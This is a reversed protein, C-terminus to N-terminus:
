AQTTSWCTSRSARQPWSTPSRPSRASRPWISHSSAAPAAARIEARAAEGKAPNRVPVLLDAGAEALRRAIVLGIGDSAGTVLARTGSLDPLSFDTRLTTM